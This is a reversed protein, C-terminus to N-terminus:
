GGDPLECRQARCIRPRPCDRDEECETVCQQEFNCVLPTPCDSDYICLETLPEQCARMGSDEECTAGPPCDRDEVCATTCTGFQCVLGDTCDSTLACTAEEPLQCAGGVDREVLLCRLGAGCDRSDVCQRRCRGLRCALPAACDTNLSCQEGIRLMERECGVGALLLAVAVGGRVLRRM